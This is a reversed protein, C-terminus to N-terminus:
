AECDPFTKRRGSHFKPVIGYFLVTGSRTWSPVDDVRGIHYNYYFYCGPNMVPKGLFTRYRGVELIKQLVLLTRSGNEMHPVMRRFDLEDSKEIAWGVNPSISGIVMGLWNSRDSM